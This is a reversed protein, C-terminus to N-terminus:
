PAPTRLASRRAITRRRRVSRRQSDRRSSHWRQTVRAASGRWRLSRGGASSRVGDELARQLFASATPHSMRGLAEVVGRRVDPNDAELTQALWPIAAPAIEGARRGRRRRRTSWSASSGRCRVM